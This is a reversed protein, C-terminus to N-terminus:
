NPVRWPKAYGSSDISISQDIDMTATSLISRHYVMPWPQWRCYQDAWRHYNIKRYIKEELVTPSVLIFNFIRRSKTDLTCKYINGLRNEIFMSVPAVEETMKGCHLFGSPRQGSTSRLCGVASEERHIGWFISPLIPHERKNFLSSFHLISVTLDM